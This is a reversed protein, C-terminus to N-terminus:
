TTTILKVRNKLRCGALTNEFGTSVLEHDNRSRKMRGLFQGINQVSEPERILYTCKAFVVERRDLM